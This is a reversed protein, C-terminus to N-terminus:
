VPLSDPDQDGAMGPATAVVPDSAPTIGSDDSAPECGDATQAADAQMEKIEEIMRDCTANFDQVNMLKRLTMLEEMARQRIAFDFMSAELAQVRQHMTWVVETLSQLAPKKSKAM